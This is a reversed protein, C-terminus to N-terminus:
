QDKTQEGWNEYFSAIEALLLALVPVKEAGPRYVLVIQTSEDELLRGCVKDEKKFLTRFEYETLVGAATGSKILDCQTSVDNCFYVNAAQHNAAEEFYRNIYHQTVFSTMDFKGLMSLAIKEEGALPHSPAFCVYVHDRYLTQLCMKERVEQAFSEWGENSFLVGADIQRQKLSDIIQRNDGELFSIKINPYKLQWRNLFDKFGLHYMRPHVIVNLKGSIGEGTKHKPNIKLQLAMYSEMIKKAEERFIEGAETLAVGNKKRRLLQCDFEQELRKMADSVAQQSIFFREATRSISQTQAIDLFYVLQETKM